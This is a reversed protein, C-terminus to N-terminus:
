KQLDLEDSGIKLEREGPKLTFLNISLCVCLALWVVLEYSHCKQFPISFLSYLHVTSHGSFYICAEHKVFVNNVKNFLFSPALRVSQCFIHNAYAINEAVIYLMCILNRRVIHHIIVWVFILINIAWTKFMSCKRIIYKQTCYGRWWLIVLLMAVLKTSFSVSARTRKEWRTKYLIALPGYMIIITFMIMIINSATFQLHLLYTSFKWVKPAFM